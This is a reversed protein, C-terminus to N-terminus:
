FAFYIIMSGEKLEFVVNSFISKELDILFSKIPIKPFVQRFNQEAMNILNQSIDIPVYRFSIGEKTLFDAIPFVAKGDGCGIDIINIPKGLTLDRLIDNLRFKLLNQERIFISDIERYSNQIYNLWNQSGDDLYAFKLPIEGLSSLNTILEYEQQKSLM